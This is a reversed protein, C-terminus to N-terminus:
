AVGFRANGGLERAMAAAALLRWCAAAHTAACTLRPTM